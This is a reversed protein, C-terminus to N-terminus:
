LLEYASNRCGNADSDSKAPNPEKQAEEQKRLLREEIEPKSAQTLEASLPLIGARELLLSERKRPMQVEQLEACPGRPCGPSSAQLYM